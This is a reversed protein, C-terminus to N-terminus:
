FRHGVNLDLELMAGGGTINNIAIKPMIFYEGVKFNPTIGIYSASGYSDEEITYLKGSFSDVYDITKSLYFSARGLHFTLYFEETLIYKLAIGYKLININQEFDSNTVQQEADLGVSVDEFPFYIDAGIDVGTGPGNVIGLHLSSDYPVNTGSFIVAFSSSCLFLIFLFAFAKVKM